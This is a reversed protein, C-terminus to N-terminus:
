RRLPLVVFFLQWKRFFLSQITQLGTLKLLTMQMILIRTTSGSFLLGVEHAVQKLKKVSKGRPKGIGQNPDPEMLDDGKHGDTIALVRSSRKLGTTVLPTVSGTTRKKTSRTTNLDSQVSSIVHDPTTLAVTNTAPPVIVLPIPMIVDEFASNASGSFVQNEWDSPGASDSDRSLGTQVGAFADWFTADKVFNKDFMIQPFRQCLSKFHEVNVAGEQVVLSNDVSPVMEDEGSSISIISVASSDSSAALYSSVSLSVAQVDAPIPVWEQNADNNDHQTMNGFQWSPADEFNVNLDVPGEGPPLDDDLPLIDAFEGNLTNVYLGLSVMVFMLSNGSRALLRGKLLDADYWWDLEGFTSVAQNVNRFNIFDLPFDLMMIWGWHNYPANRWNPGQDHMETRTLPLGLVLADRHVTSRIQFMAIANQHPYSALIQVNRVQELFEGIENQHEDWQDEPLTDAHRRHHPGAPHLHQGKSLGLKAVKSLGLKAPHVSDMSNSWNGFNLSLNGTLAVM